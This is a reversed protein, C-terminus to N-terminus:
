ALIDPDGTEIEPPTLPFLHQGEWGQFGLAGKSPPLRKKIAVKEKDRTGM